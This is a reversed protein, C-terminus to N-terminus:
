KEKSDALTALALAQFSAWDLTVESVAALGDSDRPEHKIKLPVIATRARLEDM